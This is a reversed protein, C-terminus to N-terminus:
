EVVRDPNMVVKRYDGGAILAAALQQVNAKNLRQELAQADWRAAADNEYFYKDVLLEVLAVNSHRADEFRRKLTEGARLLEDPSPGTQALAALQAHIQRELEPVSAPAAALNVRVETLPSERPPWATVNVSYVKGLDERLTEFLRLELVTELILADHRAADTASGPADFSLWLTSRPTKATIVELATQTAATLPASQSATAKTGKAGSKPSVERRPQSPLSGLFTEVLPRLKGPDFEGVITVTLGDANGYWQEWASALAAVDIHTADVDTLPAVLPDRTAAVRGIAQRLNADPSSPSFIQRLATQNLKTTATFSRTNLRLHLAKLAVDLARQHTTLWLWNSHAEVGLRMESQETEIVNNLRVGNPLRLDANPVLRVAARANVTDIDVLDHVGVHQRAEIRIMEREFLTPKVIVRVGNSLSWVEAGTAADVETATIHGPQLDGLKLARFRRLASDQAQWPKVLSAEAAREQTVAQKVDNPTQAQEWSPVTLSVISLDTHRSQCPELDKATLQEFMDAVEKEEAAPGTVPEAEFFNRLMERARTEPEAHAWRVGSRMRTVYYRQAAALLESDLYGHRRIRELERITRRVGAMTHGRKLEVELKPADLHRNASVSRVTAKTLPAGQTESVDALRQQLLLDCINAVHIPKADTRAGHRPRRDIGFLRLSAQPATNSEFVFTREELKALSRATVSPQAPVRNALDGFLARIESAVDGLREDGVIVVAVHEPRYWADYFAKLSASTAREITKATGITPRDAYASGHVLAQYEPGAVLEGYSPKLRMEERIVGRERDVEAQDFSVDGAIDRLAQLATTFLAPNGQPVMFHYQTTDPGTVANIDNGMSMGARQMFQWMANGPFHKTGNFAMHEVFHAYGLQTETENVAGANVGLWVATERTPEPLRLIYYTVGNDLTGSELHPDTAVALNPNSRSAARVAAPSNLAEANPSRPEVPYVRDEACGPALLTFTTTALAVGLYWRAGRGRRLYAGAPQESLDVGPNALRTAGGDITVTREEM